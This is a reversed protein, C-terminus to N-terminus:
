IEQGWPAPGRKLIVSFISKIKFLNGLFFYNDVSLIEQDDDYSFPICPVPARTRVDM